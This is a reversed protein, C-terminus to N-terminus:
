LVRFTGRTKEVLQMPLSALLVAIHDNSCPVFEFGNRRMMSRYEYQREKIKLPDDKLIITQNIVVM